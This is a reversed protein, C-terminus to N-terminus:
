FADEMQVMTLSPIRYEVIYEIIQLIKNHSDSIM